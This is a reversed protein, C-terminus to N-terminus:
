CSNINISLWEACKKLQLNGLLAVHFPTPSLIPSVSSCSWWDRTCLKSLNFQMCYVIFLDVNPKSSVLNKIYWLKKLVIHNCFVLKFWFICYIKCCYYYYAWTELQPVYTLELFQKKAFTSLSYQDTFHQQHPYM